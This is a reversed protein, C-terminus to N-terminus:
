FYIINLYYSIIKIAESFQTKAVQKYNKSNKQMKVGNRHSLRVLALDEQNGISKKTFEGHFM